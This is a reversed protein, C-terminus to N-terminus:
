VLKNFSFKINNNKLSVGNEDRIFYSYPKWDNGKQIYQLEANWRNKVVNTIDITKSYNGTMWWFNGSYIMNKFENVSELLVGYTNYSQSKLVEFVNKIHEINFSQMVNRWRESELYDITNQKSAGKTHLYFILDSDDFTSKHTEILDLTVFENCENKIDCVVIQNSKNYKNILKNISDMSINEESLCIGINIVHEFNFHTEILSLQEEIISNVGDIAYIHYYIRIM